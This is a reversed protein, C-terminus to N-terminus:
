RMTVTIQSALQINGSNAIVKVTYPGPAQQILANKSTASGGCALQALSFAALVALM